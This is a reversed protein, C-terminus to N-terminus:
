VSMPTPQRIVFLTLQLSESLHTRSAFAVYIPEGQSLVDMDRLVQAAVYAANTFAISKQVRFYPQDFRREAQVTTRADAVATLLKMAARVASWSPRAAVDASDNPM